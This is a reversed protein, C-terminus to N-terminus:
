RHWGGIDGLWVEVARRDGRRWTELLTRAPLESHEMTLVDTATRAERLEADLLLQLLTPLGELLGDPTFQWDPYYTQTGVAAGLLTGRQRRQAVAQRSTVGLHAAVRDTSWSREVFAARDALVRARNIEIALDRLANKAPTPYPPEGALVRLTPLIADPDDRARKAVQKLLRATESM